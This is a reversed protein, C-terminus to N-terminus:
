RTTSGPRSCSRATASSTPPRRGSTATSRSRRGHAPLAALYASLVPFYGRPGELTVELVWDGKAVVGVGSADPVKGKNFAEAGKIDYFYSSYPNKSAPDMQRKWSWEFDKATCPTGDSWKSDKRINFTWVSGDANSSIKEAVYPGPQFDANFKMLGAWLAGVGSCYLDKNYDHSSPDNQWWGGGGIRFHQDKALKEGPALSPAASVPRANFGATGLTALGAAIKLFGRRDLGAASLREALLDLQGDTIRPRRM